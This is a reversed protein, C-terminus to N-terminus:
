MVDDCLGAGGEMIILSMKSVKIRVITNVVIYSLHVHGNYLIYIELLVFM